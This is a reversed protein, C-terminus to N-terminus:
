YGQLTDVTSDPRRAFHGMTSPEAIPKPRSLVFFVLFGRTQCRGHCRPWTYPVRPRYSCRSGVPSLIHKNLLRRAGGRPRLRPVARRTQTYRSHVPATQTAGAEAFDVFLHTLAVATNLCEADSKQQDASTAAQRSPPWSALRRRSDLHRLASSPLAPGRSVFHRHDFLQSAAANELEADSWSPTTFTPVRFSSGSPSATPTTGGVPRPGALDLPM